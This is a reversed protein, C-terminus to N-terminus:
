ERARLFLDLRRAAMACYDARLEAGVFVCGNGIAAIGASASGCFPDLVIQGPSTSVKVIRDVLALPFQAPHGTRERSSRDQGTTVKPITWVDSPNKGLPHCRYRGHKKQNPYKVDPDRVLDLHFTYRAPHRTFFLWKENRPSFTRKAAVGAGYNWVVEQQLFFRTKDWLLYPLPVARGRNAIAIYGLNLWLAGDDATITWIDHLWTRAWALYDDLPLPREYEKGINYPPSTLTLDVAVGAKAMAAMVARCDRQYLVFGGRHTHPRGLPRRLKDVLIKARQGVEAATDPSVSRALVDPVAKTPQHEPRVWGQGILRAPDDPRPPRPDVPGFLELNTARGTRSM